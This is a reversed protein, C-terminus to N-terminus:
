TERGRQAILYEAVAVLHDVDEGCRGVIHNCAACLFARVRGTQHDHDLHAKHISEFSARCSACKGHQDEWMQRQAEISIGYVTRRTLELTRSAREANYLRYCTFCWTRRGHAYRPDALFEEIALVQGCRTCTLCEVGDQILISRGVPM